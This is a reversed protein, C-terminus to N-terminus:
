AFGVISGLLYSTIFRMDHRYGARHMHINASLEAYIVWLLRQWGSFEEKLGFARTSITPFM